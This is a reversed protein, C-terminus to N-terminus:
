IVNALAVSSKKNYLAYQVFITGDFMLTGASGLIYPIAELFTARTAHPNTFIGLVYTLNGMAAFFFLFMSLGEVSRRRFNQYIQPIRSSLYLFTCVWAFFRGVWITNDEVINNATTLSTTTNTNLVMVFFMMM